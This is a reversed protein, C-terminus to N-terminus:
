QSELLTFFYDIENETNFSHLSIRIREKGEPVTPSLIPRVDYGKAQFTSALQRCKENGPYILGFVPGEGKWEYKLFHTKIKNIFYTNLKHLKNLQNRNSQIFKYVHEVCLLNATDLATSYIFQKCFNVLFDRLGRSGVVVAGHSGMAKGFTHVRAFCKEEVGMENCLGSGNHGFLGTAHAEDVILALGTSSALEALEKLPAKDGEMSFLSETIIFGNKGNLINNLHDVDNHRYPTFEAGSLKMGQHISAHVYEDYYIIDGPRALTAILGANADFGSNFILAAEAHHFGAIFTELREYQESNGNLLRSGTASLQNYKRSSLDELVKQKIFASRSLGLYDNSSFDILGTTLTLQRFLHDQRRKDLYAQIRDAPFM